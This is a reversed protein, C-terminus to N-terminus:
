IVKPCQPLCLNYFASQDWFQVGKWGCWGKSQITHLDESGTYHPDLILFKVDGTHQNFDVGIITHALVGGGIMIPTGQNHFHNVLERGKSALEAGSSVFMTKSTVGILKDLCFSVEQSGIWKRSGVFSQKKDGVDVLAQQIEKHTPVPADTYGQHRFWSVITQLSRYACGWGDDNVHDQMYHHYSYTGFVLATEGDEVGSPLLGVHPNKLYGPDTVEDPFLHRNKKLLVPREHPLLLESHLERRYPELEDDTKDSPYVITIPFDWGHPFIHYPQPFFSWSTQFEYFGLLCNEMETLQRITANVFHGYLVSTQSNEPAFVIVDVPLRLSICIFDRRQCHIVLSHDVANEIAPEGTSQMMIKFNLPVKSKMLVRSKSKKKSNEDDSMYELLKKCEMHDKCSSYLLVDTDKLQFAPRGSVFVNKLKEFAAIVNEKFVETDSAAEILLPFHGRARFLMGTLCDDTQYICPVPELLSSSHESYLM